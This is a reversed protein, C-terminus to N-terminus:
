FRMEKTTGTLVPKSTKDVSMVRMAFLELRSESIKSMLLPVM